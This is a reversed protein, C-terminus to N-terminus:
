CRAETLEPSHAAQDQEVGEAIRAVGERDDCQAALQGAAPVVDRQLGPPAPLLVDLVLPHAERRRGLVVDEGRAFPRQRGVLRDLARGALRDREHARDRGVDDDRVDERERRRQRALELAHGDARDDGVEVRAHRRAARRVRVARPQWSRADAPRQPAAGVRQQSVPSAIPRLWSLSVRRRSPSGASSRTSPPMLARSASTVVNGCSSYGRAQGVPVCTTSGSM